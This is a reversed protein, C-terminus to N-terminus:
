QEQSPVDKEQQVKTMYGQASASFSWNSVQAGGGGSKGWEFTVTDPKEDDAAAATASPPPNVRRTQFQRIFSSVRFSM